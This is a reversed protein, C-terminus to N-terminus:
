PQQGKNQTHCTPAQGAQAAISGAMVMAAALTLRTLRFKM